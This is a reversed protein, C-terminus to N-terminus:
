RDRSGLTEPMGILLPIRIFIDTVIISLFVYAPGIHDWILGAIYVAGASFLMGCFSCIGLWRGMQEPPVLERTMARSPLGSIMLFGQLAGAVILFSPNPAFILILNSAWVFPMALYMVKKRGIKDALRGVFVGLFLPVLAAATEMAGLIFQDAGKIENAFVYRFPMVMGMPLSTVSFIILWRKLNKGERFVQSIGKLFNPSTEEETEWKRNSLLTLILLFTAATGVFLIFFVPRIGGINIGGFVTILLAGFMPALMGLVGMNFTECIAMATAREEDVLSNACIVGCNQGSVSNGIWFAVMAIIIITWNQALGYTLYSMAILFIAILYIRKVGVRDVLWGAFPNVLGAVIMGVSNVIGLQTATAGLAVTYISLYPTIVRHFSMAANSRVVTVKWDRQQKKFFDFGKAIAGTTRNVAQVLGM